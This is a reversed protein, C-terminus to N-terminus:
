LTATDQLIFSCLDGGTVLEMVIYYHNPSELLEVVRAIHPHETQKLIEFEQAMLSRITSSERMNQKDIIKIAHWIKTTKNMCARVEGFAGKGLLKGFKYNNM